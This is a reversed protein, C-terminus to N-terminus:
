VASGMRPMYTSGWNLKFAAGACKELKLPGKHANPRFGGSASSTTLTNSHSPLLSRLLAPAPLVRSLPDPTPPTGGSLGRVLVSLERGAGPSSKQSSRGTTQLRTLSFVLKQSWRRTDSRLPLETLLWGCAWMCPFHPVTSGMLQAM